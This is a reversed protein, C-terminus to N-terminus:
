CKKPGTPPSRWDRPCPTTPWTSNQQQSPCATHGSDLLTAESLTKTGQSGQGEQIGLDKQPCAGGRKGM